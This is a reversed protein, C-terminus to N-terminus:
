IGGAIEIAAQKCRLWLKHRLLDLRYSNIRAESGAPFEWHPTDGYLKRRRRRLMTIRRRWSKPSLRWHIGCIIEVDDSDGPERKFTRRCFPVCCRLRETM